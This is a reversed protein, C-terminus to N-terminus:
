AEPCGENALCWDQADEWLQASWRTGVGGIPHVGVMESTCRELGVEANFSVHWNFCGEWISPEVFVNADHSSQFSWKESDIEAIDILLLFDVM